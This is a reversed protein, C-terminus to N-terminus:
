LRTGTKRLLAIYFGTLGHTLPSFRLGLGTTIPRRAWGPPDLPELGLEEVARVAQAEAEVSTLTCVSYSLIGGPKLLKYAETIMQWQYRALNAADKAKRNDDVKPIVGLNTCPPDLIVKDAKGALSPYDRTLYRSDAGITEVWGLGLRDLVSRLRGIKSPRDVAIIRAKPGALQAAHSVKGGPAATMDIITEGPRPDLLRAVYMSPLSQGYILGEEWGPLDQARPSRYMPEDIRAFVGLRASRKERRAADVLPKIRKWTMLATGAGVPVGNPAYVTIKDGEVVGKAELVGPAYLPSGTLVSEAARKDVVVRKGGTSFPLPGEVPAWLAEPVEEDLRFDYGAERLMDLVTGPSARLTNVRVYYRNSPATLRQVLRCTDGVVPPLLELLRPDYRLPTGCTNTGKLM